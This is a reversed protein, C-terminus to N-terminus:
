PSASLDIVDTSKRMKKSAPSLLEGSDASRKGSTTVLSPSVAPPNNITELPATIPAMAPNHARTTGEDRSPTEGLPLRQDIPQGRERQAGSSKSPNSASKHLRQEIVERWAAKIPPVDKARIGTVVSALQKSCWMFTRQPFLTGVLDWFQAFAPDQMKPRDTAALSNVYHLWLDGKAVQNFPDEAYKSLLWEQMKVYEPGNNSGASSAMLDVGSVQGPLSGESVGGPQSSATEDIQAIM